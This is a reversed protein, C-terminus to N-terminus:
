CRAATNSLVSPSEASCTRAACRVGISSTPAAVRSASERDPGSARMQTSGSPGCVIGYRASVAQGRCAEDPVPTRQGRADEARQRGRRDRPSAPEAVPPQPLGVTVAGRAACRVSGSETVGAIDHPRHSRAVPRRDGPAACPRRPRDPDERVPSRATRRGSRGCWPRSRRAMIHGRATSAHVVLPRGRGSYGLCRIGHRTIRPAPESEGSRQVGIEDLESGLPAKPQIPEERCCATPTTRKGDGSRGSSFSLAAAPRRRGSVTGGFM